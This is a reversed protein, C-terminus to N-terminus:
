FYRFATKLRRTWKQRRPPDPLAAADACAARAEPMSALANRTRARADAGVMVSESLLYRDFGAKRMAEMTARAEGRRGPVKRIDFDVVLRALKHIEGSGALDKLIDVEGGECNLKALVADGPKFHAAFFSSASILKVPRRTTADVNSKEALLSAGGGENAGFLDAEGDRNSLAAEVLVLRGEAIPAAFNRKLVAIAHPEPEFAYVRDFRWVPSLVEELTEGWHAGIDLFITQAM